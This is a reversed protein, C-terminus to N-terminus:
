NTHVNEVAESSSVHNWTAICMKCLLMFTQLDLNLTVANRQARMVTTLDKSQSVIEIITVFSIAVKKESNM